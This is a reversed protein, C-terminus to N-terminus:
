FKHDFYEIDKRYMESVMNMTEHTYMEKYTVEYNSKNIYTNNYTDLLKDMKFLSSIHQVTEQLREFNGIHNVIIEGDEGVLWNLQHHYFLSHNNSKSAKELYKRERYIEKIFSDFSNNNLHNLDLKNVSRFTSGYKLFKYVSWLRDWTNRVIAVKYLNDYAPGMENKIYSAYHHGYDIQYKIKSDNLVSKISMGATKPIHILLINKDM